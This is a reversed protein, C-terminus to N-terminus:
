LLAFNYVNCVIILFYLIHPAHDWLMTSCQHQVAHHQVDQRRMPATCCSAANTSYLMVGCQHQVAPKRIQIDSCTPLRLTDHCSNVVVNNVNYM